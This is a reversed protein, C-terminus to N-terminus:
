FKIFCCWCSIKCCSEFGFLSECYCDLVFLFIFYMKTKTLIVTIIKRVQKAIIQKAAFRQSVDLTTFWNLVFQHDLLPLAFSQRKELPISTPSIGDFCSDRESENANSLSSVQIIKDVFESKSSNSNSQKNGM